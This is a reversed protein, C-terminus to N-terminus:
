AVVAGAGFAEFILVAGLAINIVSVALQSTQHFWAVRTGTRSLPIAIAASLVAMGVISGLGFVLMYALGQWISQSRDLALIILAASGALGHMLGILLARSPFASSHDHQHDERDDRSQADGQHSHAHFHQVGDDHSHVHFHVRSRIMKRAVDLGLVVLMFGVCAELYSAITPSVASDAIVVFAGVAFLTITHGLGWVIGQRIKNARSKTTVVLSAVAAVHDADLAHRMGIVFGLLMITTVVGSRERNHGLNAGAAM